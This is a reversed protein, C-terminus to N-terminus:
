SDSDSVKTSDPPDKIDSVGNSGGPPVPRMDEYYVVIYFRDFTSFETEKIVQIFPSNVLEEYAKSGHQSIAFKQVRKIGNM